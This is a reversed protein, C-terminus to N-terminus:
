FETVAKWEHKEITKGDENFWAIGKLKEGGLVRPLWYPDDAWMSGYPIENHAYWQPRMEETEVPEGAWKRIFFTHVELHKGDKFIFENISVKELDSVSVEVRSEERVERVTAEEITENEEPKGGFGNWYGEGFGRKKLALCIVGDKVLFALTYIKKMYIMTRRICFLAFKHDASKPDRDHEDLINSVM